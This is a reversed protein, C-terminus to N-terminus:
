ESLGRLHRTVCHARDVVNGGGQHVTCFLVPLGENESGIVAESAISWDNAQEGDGLSRRLPM